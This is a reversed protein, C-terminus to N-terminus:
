KVGRDGMRALYEARLNNIEQQIRVPSRVRDIIIQVRGGSTQIVVQGYRFIMGGIGRIKGSVDEIQDYPVDSVTMDFIGVQEVDILRHTTLYTGNRFRMIMIWAFLLIAVGVLFLFIVLGLSGERFFWFLLFFAAGLILAIAAFMWFYTLLYRRYMVIIRENPRFNIHNKFSM